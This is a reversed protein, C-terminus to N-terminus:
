TYLLCIRCRAFFDPRILWTRDPMPANRGVMLWGVRRHPGGPVASAAACAVTATAVGAFPFWRDAHAGRRVAGAGHRRWSRDRAPLAPTASRCDMSAVRPAGSRLGPSSVAPDRQLRGPRAPVLTDVARFGPQRDHPSM